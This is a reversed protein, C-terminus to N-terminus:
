HPLLTDPPIAVIDRLAGEGEAVTLTVGMDEVLKLEEPDFWEFPEIEQFAFLKYSGPPVSKLTFLGRETTNTVQYMQHASRLEPAEPVLVVTAPSPQNNATITGAIQAGNAALVIRLQGRANETLNLEGALVENGAFSESKLWLGEPLADVVIMWRGPTVGSLRISGDASVKSAPQPGLALGESPVLRVTINPVNGRPAGELEVTGVVDFAASLPLSVEERAPAASVEIPARGGFPHGAFLQSAVLLYSGPSVGHIEFKGTASDVYASARGIYSAMGNESHALVVQIQSSSFKDIPSSIRGRVSLARVKHLQFNVDSLDSGESLSVPTASDVDIVGPYYSAAYADQVEPVLAGSEFPRSMPSNPLAAHLLYRGAPLGFVRYEGRDNSSSGTVSILQRHGNAYSFRLVQIGVSQIPDGDEDVVRGAIAGQPVLRFIVQSLQQGAALTLNTGEGAPSLAGYIQRAFGNREVWLRYTGPPLHLTFNGGADTDASIPSVTGGTASTIRTYIVHASKVPAGSLKSIVSGEVVAATRSDTTQMFISGVMYVFVALFSNALGM